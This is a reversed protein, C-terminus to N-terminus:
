KGKIQRGFGWYGVESSREAEHGTKLGWDPQYFVFYFAKHAVHWTDPEDSNM